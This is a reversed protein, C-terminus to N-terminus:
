TPEGEDLIATLERAETELLAANQGWERVRALKSEAVDARKVYEISDDCFPGVAEVIKEPACGLLKAVGDARAKWEQMSEFHKDRQGSLSAVEEWARHADAKLANREAELAEVCTECKYVLRSLSHGCPMKESLEPMPLGIVQGDM